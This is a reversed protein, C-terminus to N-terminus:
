QQKFKIDAVTIHASLCHDVLHENLHQDSTALVGHVYLWFLCCPRCLASLLVNAKTWVAIRLMYALTGDVEICVNEM